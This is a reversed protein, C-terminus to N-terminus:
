GETPEEPANESGAEIADLRESLDIVADELADISAQQDAQAGAKTYKGRGQGAAKEVTM